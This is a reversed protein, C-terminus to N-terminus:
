MDFFFGVRQRLAEFAAETEVEGSGTRFQVGDKECRLLDEKSFAESAEARTMFQFFERCHTLSMFQPEHQGEDEADERVAKKRRQHCDNFRWARM